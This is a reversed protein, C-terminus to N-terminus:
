VAVELQVSTFALNSKMYNSLICARSTQGFMLETIDTLARFVCDRGGVGSTSRVMVGTGLKDEAWGLGWPPEWHQGGGRRSGTQALVPRAGLDHGAM